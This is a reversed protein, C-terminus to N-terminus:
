RCNPADHERRGRPHPDRAACAPSCGGLQPVAAVARFHRRGLIRRRVPVGARRRTSARSDAHRRARERRPHRRARRRITRAGQDASRACRTPPTWRDFIRETWCATSRRRPSPTCISTRADRCISTSRECSARAGPVVWGRRARRHARTRLAAAQRMQIRQSLVAWAAAEYPSHFGCPRLGPLREQRQAIVPDRPRCGALRACRHRAVPLPAVQQPPPRWTAPGRCRSARQGDRRRQRGGGGAALREGGRLRASSTRAVRAGAARGARIGGLVGQEHELSWPGLVEVDVVHAAAHTRRDATM